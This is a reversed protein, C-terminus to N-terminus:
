LWKKVPLLNTKIFEDNLSNLVPMFNKVWNIKDHGQPALTIDRIMSKMFNNVEYNKKYIKLQKIM